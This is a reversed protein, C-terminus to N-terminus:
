RKTSMGQSNLWESGWVAGWLRGLGYGAQKEQGREDRERLVAHHELLCPFVTLEDKRAWEDREHKEFRHMCRGCAPISTSSTLTYTEIFSCAPCTLLVSPPLLDLCLHKCPKIPLFSEPPFRSPPLTMAPFTNTLSLTTNPAAKVRFTRRANSPFHISM